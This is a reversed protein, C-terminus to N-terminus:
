TGTLRGALLELAHATEQDQAHAYVGMTVRSDAHGVIRQVIHPPVGLALLLSVASHRLEHLRLQPLGARELLPRWHRRHLNQPEMHTGALSPFVLEATSDKRQQRLADLVVAPLYLTRTGAATKTQREDWGTRPYRRASRSISITGAQWNVDRWRLALAEGSRLGTLIFLLWLVAYRDSAAAALFAKAQGLTLIRAAPRRVSPPRVVDVVNRPITEDRYADGLAKHLLRHILLITGASVAPTLSRYLARLDAARLEGIPTAALPEAHKALQRYRIATSEALHGSQQGLWETLYDGLRQQAPQARATATRKLADLKRLAEARTKGSVARRHGDLYARAEWTGNPRQSVSGTGYDRRASAAM